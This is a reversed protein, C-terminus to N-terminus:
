HWPPTCIGLSVIKPDGICPLFDADKFPFCKTNCACRCKHKKFLSEPLVSSLM